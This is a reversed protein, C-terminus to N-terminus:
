STTHENSIEVLYNDDYTDEENAKDWARLMLPLDFLVGKPLNFDYYAGNAYIKGTADFNESINLEAVLGIFANKREIIWGLATRTVEIQDCKDNTVIFKKM